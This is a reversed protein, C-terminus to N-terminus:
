TSRIHCADLFVIPKCYTFGIHAANLSLFARKFRHDDTVEFELITGPNQRVISELCYRIYTFSSDNQLYNQGTVTNAARWATQYPIEVGTSKRVYNVLDSPKVSKISTLDTTLNKVAMTSSKVRPNECFISHQLNQISIYVGGNRVTALLHFPCDTDERLNEKKKRGNEIITPCVAEFRNNRNYVIKSPCNSQVCYMRFHDKLAALSSFQKNGFDNFEDHKDMKVSNGNRANKVEFNDHYENTIHSDNVDNNFDEDSTFGYVSSQPEGQSSM